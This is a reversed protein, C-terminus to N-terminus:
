FSNIFNAGFLKQIGLASRVGIVGKAEISKEVKWKSKENPKKKCPVWTAWEFLKPELYGFISFISSYLGKSTTKQPNNLFIHVDYQNSTNKEWFHFTYFLFLATRLSVGSIIKSIIGTLRLGSVIRNNKRSKRCIKWPHWNQLFIKFLDYTCIVSERWTSKKFIEAM